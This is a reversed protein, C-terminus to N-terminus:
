EPLTVPLSVLEAQELGRRRAQRRYGAAEAALCGGPQLVM